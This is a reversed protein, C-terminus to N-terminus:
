RAGGRPSCHKRACAFHAYQYRTTTPIETLRGGISVRKWGRRVPMPDPAYIPAPESLKVIISRNRACWRLCLPCMSNRTARYAGGYSLSAYFERFIELNGDYKQQWPIDDRDWLDGLLGPLALPATPEIPAVSV